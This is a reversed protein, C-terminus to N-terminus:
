APEELKRLAADTAMFEFRKGARSQMLYGMEVLSLLDTRATNRAVQNSEQHGEISYVTGPHRLAHLLLERQRHNLRDDSAFLGQAAAFEKRQRVLKARFEQRAKGLVGVMYVLFYTFDAGDTETNIYAKGYQGTSELILRSIPLFEVLWYGSRLMSWLFVIRATRGNGDCFPHDFGIQYHLASARVVPHVFSGGAQNTDNAFACLSQLRHGLEAAPPPVHVVENSGNKGVTVRDEDRRFRGAHDPNDLTDATLMTQLELLLEPTLPQKAREAMFRIAKYNNVIMRESKSRPPRAERLMAKAVAHLTSAGEIQSSAIAEDMLSSVVFRRKHEASLPQEDDAGLMGALEQDIMHLEQQVGDTVIYTLSQGARAALPLTRAGSTRAMKVWAWVVEPDLNEDRAIPAVKAWPLYDRNLRAVLSQALPTLMGLVAQEAKTSLIRALDPLPKPM